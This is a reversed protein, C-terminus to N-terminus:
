IIKVTSGFQQRRSGICRYIRFSSVNATITWNFGSGIGVRSSEVLGSWVTKDRRRGRHSNIDLSLFVARVLEIRLNGTPLQRSDDRIWNVSSRSSAVLRHSNPM